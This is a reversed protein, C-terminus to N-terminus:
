PSVSPQPAITPLRLVLSAVVAAAGIAGITTHHAADDDVFVMFPANTM